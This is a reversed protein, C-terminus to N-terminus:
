TIPPPILHVASAIFVATVEDGGNLALDDAVRRIFLAIVSDSM